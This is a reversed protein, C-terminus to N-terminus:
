DAVRMKALQKDSILGRAAAKKAHKPLRKPKGAAVHPTTPKGGFKVAKNGIEVKTDAM